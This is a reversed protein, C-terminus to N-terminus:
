QPTDTSFSNDSPTDPVMHQMKEGLIFQMKMYKSVCRDICTLEGKNLDPEHYNTPICKEKCTANILGTVADFQREAQVLNEENVAYQQTYSGGSNWSM